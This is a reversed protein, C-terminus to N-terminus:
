TTANRQTRVGFTFVVTTGTAIYDFEIQDSEQANFEISEGAALVKGAITAPSAGTVDAIVTQGGSWTGADTKSVSQFLLKM